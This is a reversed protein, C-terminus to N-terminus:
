QEIEIGIEGRHLLLQARFQAAPRQADQRHQRLGGAADGGAPLGLPMAHLGPRQDPLGPPKARVNEEDLGPGPDIHLHVVAQHADDVAHDGNALHQGDVFHGALQGATPLLFLYDTAQDGLHLGPQPGLRAFAQGARDADAGVTEQGLGGGVHLFRVTVRHDVRGVKRKERWNFSRLPM